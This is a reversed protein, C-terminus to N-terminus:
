YEGSIAEDIAKMAEKSPPNNADIGVVRTTDQWGFNNKANFILGTANGKGAVMREEICQEVKDRAKKITPFFEEKASYNIITRRDVGISYALGSMTYVPYEEKREEALQDQKIFYADILEQLEEVTKFAPPRGTTNMNYM